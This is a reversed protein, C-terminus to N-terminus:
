KCNSGYSNLVECFESIDLKVFDFVGKEKIYPITIKDNRVKKDHVLKSSIQSFDYASNSCFEARLLEIQQLVEASVYGLQHLVKHEFYIGEIVGKGHPLKYLMEIGHGVSHGLNLVMRVDNDELDLSVIHQKFAISKKITNKIDVLKLDSEDFSNDLFYYKFVEGIGYNLIDGSFSNIVEDVVIVEDAIKITGLVNKIGNFNIANKGGISSDVLSLLTTAINTFKLGRKYISSVFNTLDGIAGGGFCYLTDDKNLGLNILENLIKEVNSFCKVNDGNGNEDLVIINTFVQDLSLKYIDYVVDSVVLLHKKSANIDTVNNIFTVKEM